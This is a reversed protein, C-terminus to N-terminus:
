RECHLQPRRRSEGLPLSRTDSGLPRAWVLQAHLAAADAAPWGVLDQWSRGGNEAIQHKKCWRQLAAPDSPDVLHGEMPANLRHDQDDTSYALGNGVSTRPEIVTIEIAVPSARVLQVAASAGTFGGGVITVRTVIANSGM